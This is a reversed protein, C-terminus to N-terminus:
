NPPKAELLAFNDIQPKKSKPHVQILPFKEFFMKMLLVSIPELTMFCKVQETCMKAFIFPRQFPKAENKIQNSADNVLNVFIDQMSCINAEDQHSEIPAKELDSVM